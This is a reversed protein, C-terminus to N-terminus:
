RNPTNLKRWVRLAETAGWAQADCGRQEHPADGDVIEPLQGLCGENMLTDMSALYSRAAAISQPSHEWAEALAECFSPFTWTWATGNHYAAKRRTDEDGEYRGQYPANPNNLLAGHLYIALPQEVPLPALTRLAGPVVLYRAAADVARRAKQGSVLGLSIAFLYNSRLADDAVAEAAPRYPSAILLDSFYGRNELWFLREFSGEALRALEAWQPSEKLDLKALHRLLRIWLVQIEVPYGERPTGAPYNTDMWTFHSPSWILGSARDMRIGNPTGDRYGTAIELLVDTITRGNSDVKVDLIRQGTLEALEECVIGYWLPADSTDRNSADEGHISNPLTGKAAFRGFTILLHEVEETMGAALMGRACILSDRGWDLFWPYGAIVTKGNERRVVFAQVALALQRGFADQQESRKVTEENQTERAVELTKLIGAPPEQRDANLVLTVSTGKSIPLEFWGPSFADAHTRQGRSAEVPHFIGMSWEAEHHYFGSDTFARLHRDAAPTFEFGTKDTLPRSNAAFHHEAGPNRETEMHFSRDEIDVRVTLSVKSEPPLEKGFLPLSGPRIFRLVTTNWGPIMDAVVQIEIMRGDGAGAVFRWRAPPGPLFEVLSDDNLPSIFGDAAVWVRIRKAFIHRDVPVSAHLNAALACDYKSTVEGLNAHIRAMGGIGNTLLALGTPAKINGAKRALDATTRLGAVQPEASLFRVTAALMTEGAGYREMELEVNGTYINPHFSAVHGSKTEISEVHYQRDGCKLTARFPAKDEVLLWHGPPVPTIRRVDLQSWLVVNPYHESALADDLATVLNTRALEPKLVSLSSLVRSPSTNVREALERWHYPGVEECPLTERLATVLWAAQARAKRYSNGTLGRPLLGLALCFCGGAPMQFGVENASRKEWVFPKQTLLDLQPEGMEVFDQQSLAFPHASNLDTNVLVLVKDLGEASIRSLAYIPSHAANLRTLSAGDLFCPHHALLRNLEALEPVINEPNGWSLGRSSHVNLKETALWEVGCTFGFGGSASTLACLRNRLLSWTRGEKALRDNDHTESYHVYLGVRENQGNSYDLYSSVASGSYNQFLESYAWQMGGDTLLNETAEWSGGLGELLFITEPFEDLVRATIYQWAPVPIKYGADCRFGDVGRRCWTLLVDAIYEWLKPHRHDLESLDEWFTGWAGPSIFEGNEKRLYWEPHHEQLWAGWGTHNIVIDLFVRAGRCHAAFTLEKFQDVGTTKKDFEVLAPDIGTLDLSAYPSGYRGMRAFVTPTPNVPLLHLIRCGLTDVIHPLAKILDRLKGSPPIVTFGQQDLEALQMEFLPNRTSIATRSEGFMRVFACYISNATRYSDPHISIGLDPGDPWHQRGQPDVAYAKARFYGVENMVIERRWEGDLSEMPVDRWSSQALRRRGSHANIIEQRLVSGRGLNTRLFARWGEPLTKGDARQLTFVLRDGVFRLVRAGTAPIMVFNTMTLDFLLGFRSDQLNIPVSEGVRWLIAVDRYAQPTFVNLKRASKQSPIEQFARYNSRGEDNRPRLM